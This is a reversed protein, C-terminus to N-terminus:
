PEGTEGTESLTDMVRALTRENDTPPPDYQYGKDIIWEDLYPARAGQRWAWADSNCWKRHRAAFAEQTDLQEIDPIQSMAREAATRHGKKPHASYISEFFIIIDNGSAAPVVMRRQKSLQSRYRSRETHPVPKPQTHANLSCETPVPRPLTGFTFNNLESQTCVKGSDQQDPKIPCKRMRSLRQLTSRDAHDSWDHVVLRALSDRDVWGAALLSEILKEPSGSWEMAAAIRKNSYRGINGQPAYQSTFHFLLELHGLAAVHRIGLLSALGHTKPHAPTGRKM